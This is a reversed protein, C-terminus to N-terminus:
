KDDPKDLIITLYGSQIYPLLNLSEELPLVKEEILNLIIASATGLSYYENMYYRVTKFLNFLERNSEFLYFSEERTESNSDEM